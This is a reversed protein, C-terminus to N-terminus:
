TLLGVARNLETLQDPVSGAPHDLWSVSSSTSQPLERTFLHRPWFTYPRAPVLSRNCRGISAFFPHSRKSPHLSHIHGKPLTFPVSTVKRFPALFPHSAKPLM